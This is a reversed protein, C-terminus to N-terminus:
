RKSPRPRLHLLAEEPQCAFWSKISLRCGPRLHERDSRAMQIQFESEWQDFRIMGGRVNYEVKEKRDNGAQICSGGLMTGEDLRGSGRGCGHLSTAAPTDPRGLTNSEGDSVDFEKRMGM